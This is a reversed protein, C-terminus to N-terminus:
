SRRSGLYAALARLPETDGKLENLLRVGQGGLREAIRETEAVGFVEPYTLKGMKADKGTAKGAQEDTQTADILDDVVQYLQGICDGFRALTDIQDANAGGCIAGMVCSARILAGTKNAHITFLRQPPAQGPALGGLTDYVQGVIMDRTARSLERSLAGARGADPVRQPIIDFALALMMDGALIAMCEGAHVHLTPKGRRMLDNDMAPLDDHVLSFAHVFEVAACAPLAAEGPAGVAMASMWALVPRLRKGGQLLAYETASLLNAPLALSSLYGALYQDTM